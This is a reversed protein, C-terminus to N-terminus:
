GAVKLLDDIHEGLNEPTYNSFYRVTGNIDIIVQWPTGIVDYEKTIVTNKDFAVNYPLQNQEQYAIAKELSDEFGVNIALFEIKDGYKAHLEKFKPIEAKCIPCWTAWFILYVPKKGRYSSLSFDDGSLTKLDFDIAEDGLEAAQANLSLLSLAIMCVMAMKLKSLLASKLQDIFSFVVVGM